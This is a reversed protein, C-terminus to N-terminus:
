LIYVFIREKGRNRAMVDLREMRQDLVRAKRDRFVIKPLARHFIQRRKLPGVNVSGSVVVSGFHQLGDQFRVRVDLQAILLVAPGREAPSSVRTVHFRHPEQEFFSRVFGRGVFIPFRGSIQQRIWRM